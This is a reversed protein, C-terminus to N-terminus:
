LAREKPDDSRPNGSIFRFHWYGNGQPVRSFKNGPLLRRLQKKFTLICRFTDRIKFYYCGLILVGDFLKRVAGASFHFGDVERALTPESVTSNRACPSFNASM